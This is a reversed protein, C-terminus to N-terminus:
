ILSYFKSIEFDEKLEFVLKIQSQNNFKIFFLSKEDIYMQSETIAFGKKQIDILSSEIKICSLFDSIFEM